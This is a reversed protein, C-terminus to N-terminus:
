KENKRSLWESFTMGKQIAEDIDMEEIEKNETATKKTTQDDGPPSTDVVEDVDNIINTEEIERKTEVQEIQVYDTNINGREIRLAKMEDLLVKMTEDKTNLQLQLYQKDTTLQKIQQQNSQQLRNIESEHMNMMNIAGKDLRELYDAHANKLNEIERNHAETMVKLRRQVLDEIENVNPQTQQMAIVDGKANDNQMGKAGGKAVRKKVSPYLEFIFEQNIMLISNDYDGAIYKISNNLKRLSPQSDRFKQLHYRITRPQRETLESAERITIWKIEAM